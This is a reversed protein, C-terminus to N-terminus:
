GREGPSLVDSYDCLGGLYVALASVANSKGGRRGVVFWAEEVLGRPPDSRGTLNTFCALEEATLPEGMAALLLSRWGLWSAGGLVTGLLEPKELAKRLTTRPKM